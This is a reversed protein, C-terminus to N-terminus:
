SEADGTGESETEPIVELWMKVAYSPSGHKTVWYAGNWYYKDENTYNWGYQKRLVTYYGPAPPQREEVSVYREVSM